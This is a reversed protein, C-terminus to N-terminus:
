RIKAVFHGNGLPVICRRPVEHGSPGWGRRKADDKLVNIKFMARHTASSQAEVTTVLARTCAPHCQLTAVPFTAQQHRPGKPWFVRCGKVRGFRTFHEELERQMREVDRRGAWDRLPGVQVAAFRALNKIAVDRDAQSRFTVTACGLWEGGNTAPHQQGPHQQGQLQFSIESVDGGRFLAQVESAATGQAIESLFIKTPFSEQKLPGTRRPHISAEYLAIQLAWDADQRSDHAEGFVVSQLTAVKPRMLSVLSHLKHKQWHDKGEVTFLLATDVIKLHCMRLARLDNQLAHGVLITEPSISDLVKEQVVEFPLAGNEELLHKPEVGSIPTRYDLIGAPDRRVYLDLLTGSVSVISVRALANPDDKAYVMECDLGLVLRVPPGPRTKRWSAGETQFRRMYESPYTPHRRTRELLSQWGALLRADDGARLRKAPRSPASEQPAVTPPEIRKAASAAASQQVAVAPSPASPRAVGATGAPAAVKAGLLSEAPTDGAARAVALAAQLEPAPVDGVAAAASAGNPHVQV